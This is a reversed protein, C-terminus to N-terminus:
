GQGKGRGVASERCKRPGEEWENAPEQKQRRAPLHNERPRPLTEKGNLSRAGGERLAPILKVMIAEM